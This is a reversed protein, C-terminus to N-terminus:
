AKVFNKKALSRVEEPLREHCAWFSSATNNEFTEPLDLTM